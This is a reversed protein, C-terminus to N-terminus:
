LTKGGGLRRTGGGHRRDVGIEVGCEDVERQKPKNRYHIVLTLPMFVVSAGNSSRENMRFNVITL